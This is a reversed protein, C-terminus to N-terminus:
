HTPLPTASPVSNINQTVAVSSGGLADVATRRTATPIPTVAAAQPFKRRLVRADRAFADKYSVTADTAALKATQVFHFSGIYVSKGPEVKFRISFPEASSVITPGSGVSWQYLEYEGAALPVAFVAGSSERSSFDRSRTNQYDFTGEVKRDARRYHVRYTAPSGKYTVSGWVLGEKATPTVFDEDVGSTACASLLLLFALAVPKM